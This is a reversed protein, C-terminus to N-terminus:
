KKDTTKEDDTEGLAERLAAAYGAPSVETYETLTVTVDQRLRVGTDDTIMDGWDLKTVVWKTARSMGTAFNRLTGAVAAVRVIAPPNHERDARYGSSSWDELARCDGDVRRVPDESYGDFRLPLTLTRLPRKTWVIVPERLQREVQQWGGAGSGYTEQGILKLTLRPQDPLLATIVVDFGNSM